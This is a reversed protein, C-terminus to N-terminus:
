NGSSWNEGLISFDMFDVQGSGNLDANLGGGQKLWTQSM